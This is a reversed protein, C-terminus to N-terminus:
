WCWKCGTMSSKCVTAAVKEIMNQIKSLVESTGIM